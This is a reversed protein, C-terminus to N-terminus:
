GHCLVKIADLVQQCYNESVTIIKAAIQMRETDQQRISRRLVEHLLAASIHWALRIRGVKWNVSQGYSDLFAIIFNEIEGMGAGARLGNLYVNAIFSGIDILPDGRCIEDMDILTVRDGDALLNGLKLDMHLPTEFDEHGAAEDYSTLLHRVVPAIREALMPDHRNVTEVTLQLQKIIQEIGYAPLGAIRCNHFAAVCRGLNVLLKPGFVSDAKWELPRGDVHAQWLVAHRVDYALPEACCPNQRALAQMAKHVQEGTNDRYAKGYVLVIRPSQGSSNGKIVIRYRTMCSKEPLYHMVEYDVDSVEENEALGSLERQASFYSLLFPKSHLIPLHELQNDHPFAWLVMNLEPLFSVASFRNDVYALGAQAKNVKQAKQDKPYLRASVLQCDIKRTLKNVMRIRYSLQFSKGPKHRKESVECSEVTIEPDAAKLWHDQFFRRMFDEHLIQPLQPFQPDIVSLPM